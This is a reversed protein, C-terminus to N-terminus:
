EKTETSLLLSVRTFGALKCAQRVPIQYHTKWYDVLERKAAPRLVKKGFRRESARIHVTQEGVVKKYQSPEAELEKLRKLQSVEIGSYKSRWKYFPAKASATNAAFM